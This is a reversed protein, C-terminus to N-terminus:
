GARSTGAKLPTDTLACAQLMPLGDAPAGATCRLYVKAGRLLPRVSDAASCASSGAASRCSQSPLLEALVPHAADEAKLALEVHGDDRDRTRQMRGTVLLTRGRYRADAAVPDAQYEAYLLEIDYLAPREAAAPQPEGGHRDSCAALLGLAIALFLRASRRM